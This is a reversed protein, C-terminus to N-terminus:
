TGPRQAFFWDKKTTITKYRLSEFEESTLQFLISKM